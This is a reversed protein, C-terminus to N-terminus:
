DNENKEENMNLIVKNYFEERNKMMEFAVNCKELPFKHTILPKVDIKGDAMASISEKWDNQIDNYSSNWTGSIKLEKRLIYWYTNQSMTIEGAPNGMFVARGHPKVAALCTELADSFGTGEIACDVTIGSKYESFGLTEAFDIKRKDIDVYYVDKAGFLKAWRGAIIGIPGAGSILVSDGKTIELKLTAHRAVSVPECMAGEDFSLSNPMVLVNWRKVAIYETMGGNRRSGYYDYNECTAYSKEECNKCKFCPLLPFIVVHANELKGKPDHVVKGSFEHGIVTPFHYTGKTYVRSIDSGCIGCSKVAVLVEDDGCPQLPIDEYRLDGIARLNASKATNKM